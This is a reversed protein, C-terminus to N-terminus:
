RRGRQIQLWRLGLAGSVILFGLVTLGPQSSSGGIVAGVGGLLLLFGSLPDKRFAQHCAAETAKLPRPSPNM